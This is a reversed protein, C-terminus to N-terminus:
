HVCKHGVMRMILFILYYSLHHSVIHKSVSYGCDKNVKGLTRAFWANDPWDGFTVLHFKHGAHMALVLSLNCCDIRQKIGDM